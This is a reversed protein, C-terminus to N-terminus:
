IKENKRCKKRHRSLNSHTVSIQCKDCIVPERARELIKEKNKYYNGKARDKFKEINKIYYQRKKEALECRHEEMYVRKKEALEVKNDERYKKQYEKQSFEATYRNVTKM